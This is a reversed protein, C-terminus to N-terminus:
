WTMRRTVPPMIPNPMLHQEGLFRNKTIRKTIPTLTSGEQQQVEFYPLDFWWGWKSAFRIVDDPMGQQYGVREVMGEREFEEFARRTDEAEIRYDYFIVRDVGMMKNWEFWERVHPFQGFCPATCIAISPKSTM